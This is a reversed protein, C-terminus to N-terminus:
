QFYGVVDLVMHVTGASANHVGITGKGDWALSLIANNTRVQGPGFNITSTGPDPGGGPYLRLNGAATPGVVTVNVAIAWATGPVGCVGAVTFSRLGGAALAPGGLLGAPNRTDLLRCPTVTFYSAAPL